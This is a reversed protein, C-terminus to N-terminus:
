KLLKTIGESYSVECILSFLSMLESLFLATGFVKKDMMSINKFEFFKKEFYKGMENESKNLKLLELDSILQDWTAKLYELISCSHYLLPKNLENDHPLCEPFKNRLYVLHKFTFTPLIKYIDSRVSAANFIMILNALHKPDEMAIEQALFREDLNLLTPVLSEIMSPHQKGLDGLLLYISNKDEPYRSLNKFLSQCLYILGATTTIKFNGLMRHSLYRCDAKSDQIILVISQLQEYDFYLQNFENKSIGSNQLSTVNNSSIKKLSNIANVRISESEDNFMDLLFNVAVLTFERSTLCLECISDVTANRVEEYEDELGHIFAGCASADLLNLGEVGEYEIDMNKYSNRKVRSETLHKKSLTQLLYNQKVGRFTGLLACAQVRVAVSNDNLIDCFRIFADDVLRLGEGNSSILRTNPFSSIITWLLKLGSVRVNEDDDKLLSAVKEYKKSEITVSVCYLKILCELATRRVTAEFDDLHNMYILELDMNSILERGASVNDIVFTEEINIFFLLFNLCEIKVRADFNFNRVINLCFNLHKIVNDKFFSNSLNKSKLLLSIFSLCEPSPNPNDLQDLVAVQVLPKFDFNPLLLAKRLLYWADSTTEAVDSNIIKLKLQPVLYNFVFEM